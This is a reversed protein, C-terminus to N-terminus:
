EKRWVSIYAEGFKWAFTGFALLLGWNLIALPFKRFAPIGTLFTTGTYLSVFGRQRLLVAWEEPSKLSVHDPRWGSWNHGMFRAGIGMPNPTALIYIGDPELCRSVDEIMYEPHYLHEILHLSIIAKFEGDDFPLREASGQITKVRENRKRAEDLLRWDYDFGIITSDPFWEELFELLIGPGCGIDVISSSADVNLPVYRRLIRKYLQYALRLKTRHLFGNLTGKEPAHYHSQRCLDVTVQDLSVGKEVGTIEKHNKVAM